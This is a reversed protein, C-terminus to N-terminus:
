AAGGRFRLLRCQKRVQDMTRWMVRRKIFTQLTSINPDFRYLDLSIIEEVIRLCVDSVMDESLKLGNRALCGRVDKGVKERLACWFSEPPNDSDWVICLAKETYGALKEETYVM